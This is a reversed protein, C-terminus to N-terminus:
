KTERLVLLHYGWVFSTGLTYALPYFFSALNTGSVGLALLLGLYLFRAGVVLLILTAIVLVLQVYSRRQNVEYQRVEQDEMSLKKNAIMWHYAFVPIAVLLTATRLAVARAFTDYSYGAPNADALATLVLSLLENFSFYVACLTIFSVLYYYGRRASNYKSENKSGGFVAKVFIFILGVVFALIILSILPGIFDMPNFYPTYYNNTSM